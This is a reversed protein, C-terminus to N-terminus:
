IVAFSIGPCLAHLVKKLFGVKDVLNGGPDQVTMLLKDGPVLRVSQDQQVMQVAAAADVAHKDHFELQIHRGQQLISKVGCSGAVAKLESLCFLSEVGDPVPGFRDRVEERLARVEQDNECAAIRKYVEIKQREDGIYQEPIFGEYDLDVVTEIREQAEGIGMDGMADELLRCYMDFGVSMIDGSQEAGFISGVGRIEMDRMALGFGSGLESYDNIVQLRKQATETLPREPPYFLYAYARETSRGVRGRIQYLQALGLADARDVILTNANPIDLGSEIISSCLLVDLERDIFDKMVEELQNEPLQGHAIGIRARPVLKKLFQYVQEMSRVRNHVYFVQGGRDLEQLLARKVMNENFELVYTEVPLRSRPPTRILSMDRVKILSLHLTRPIPTATMAIVDVLKRLSKIKEKDKVGFRQEEDIVLLGLNKFDVDKSLLRHTGIVVDLEGRKLAALIKKQEATSRFRNLYDLRIPYTEFRERFTQYHQEALITTPVLVAVQRGDMVTKFAARIAVETKGFGVDGCILRDMPRPSEMDQKVEDIARQQDPTEEFPFASEFENQWRTDQGVAHGPLKMRAAYIEVLERAIEEVNKRVRARTKEWSKGGLTDLRPPKGEQGVYRQVLNIMELPVYLKEGDRYELKLYDKEKGLASLRELGLFLGIGHQVHVVYDGAQLDLFSDIPVSNVSRFKRRFARRRHFVERELILSLKGDPFDFGASLAAVALTLRGPGAQGLGQHPHLHELLGQLRNAQGQYTSVLLVTHGTGLKEELDKELERLNGRYERPARFPLPQEDAEGGALTRFVLQPQPVQELFLQAPPLKLKMPSFYGEYLEQVDRLFTEANNALSDGDVALVLPEKPFFDLLTSTHEFFLPLYNEIGPFYLSHALKGALADRETGAAFRVRVQELARDINPQHLMIERQPLILCEKLSTISRQTDAHFSRLSEIEIDFFEVRCPDSLNSPFVDLIGGKLAFEGAREVRPVQEYGLDVLYRVLEEPEHLDGPKILLSADVFGEAPILRQLLARVPAVVLPQQVSLLRHLVDIRHHVIDPFPSVDEYPLVEVHPFYCLGPREGLFFELDAYIDEAERSTGATILLPRGSERWLTAATLARSSGWAGGCRLTREPHAHLRHLIQQMVPHSALQDLPSFSM